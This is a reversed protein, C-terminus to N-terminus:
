HQIVTTSTSKLKLSRFGVLSTVGLNYNYTASVTVRSGPSNNGDPWVSQVELQAPQTGPAYQRVIAEVDANNSGPGVPSPSKLGHVAAYRTGARVAEALTNNTYVAIGLDMAGVLLILVLPAILATELMTVGRRRVSTGKRMSATSVLRCKSSFAIARM